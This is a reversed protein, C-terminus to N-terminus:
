ISLILLALKLKQKIFSFLTKNLTLTIMSYIMFLLSM